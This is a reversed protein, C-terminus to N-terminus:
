NMEDFISSKSNVYRTIQTADNSAIKNNSILDAATKREEETKDDASNFVSTKGNIMRIIQTADNALVKGDYNVDGYLWIKLEGLKKFEGSSVTVAMIKPVYKGPKFIALKYDGKKVASFYFKQDYRKGDSNKTPEETTGQYLFNAPSESKIDANIEEDGVQSDYLLYVTDDKENWSIATGSIDAGAPIGSGHITFEGEGYGAVSINATTELNQPRVTVEYIYFTEGDVTVKTPTRLAIEDEDFAQGDQKTVSVIPASGNQDRVAIYFSSETQGEKVWEAGYFEDLKSKDTPNPQSYCGWDPLVSKVTHVYTKGDSNFSVALDGTKYSEVKCAYENGEEYVTKIGTQAVLKVAYYANSRRVAYYRYSGMSSEMTVIQAQEQSVYEEVSDGKADAALVIEGAQSVKVDGGVPFSYLTIAENEPLNYSGDTISFLFHREEAKGSSTDFYGGEANKITFSHEGVNAATRIAFSFTTVRGTKSTKSNKICSIHYPNADVTESTSVRDSSSILEGKQDVQVLSFASTDYELDFAFNDLGANRDISVTVDIYDTSHNEEVHVSMVYPDAAAGALEQGFAPTRCTMILLLVLISRWFLKSQKQKKM